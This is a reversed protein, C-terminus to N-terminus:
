SRIVLFNLRHPRVMGDVGGLKAPSPGVAARNTRNHRDNPTYVKINVSVKVRQTINIKM